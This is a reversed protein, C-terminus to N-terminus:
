HHQHSHHPHKCILVPVESHHLVSESVSGLITRRLKGLGRSGMVILTANIKKAYEVIVHWAERGQLRTFTGDINRSKLLQLTSAEIEAAKQRDKEELEHIRGPTPGDLVGVDGFYDAVYCTFVKNGPRHIHNLYFEMCFESNKSSDLPILVSAM